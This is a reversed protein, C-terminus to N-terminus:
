LTDCIRWTTCFTMVWVALSPGCCEYTLHCSMSRVRCLQGFCAFCMWFYGFVFACFGPVNLTVCLAVVGPFHCSMSRVRCVHSIVHDPTPCTANHRALHQTVHWTGHTPETHTHTVHRPVCTAHSCISVYPHWSCTPWSMVHSMVALEMNHLTHLCETDCLVVSPHWSCTPWSHSHNYERSNRESTDAHHRVLSHPLM